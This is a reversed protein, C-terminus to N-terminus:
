SDASSFLALMSGAMFDAKPVRLDLHRVAGPALGAATQDVTQERRQQQAATESGSRSARMTLSSPRQMAIVASLKTTM